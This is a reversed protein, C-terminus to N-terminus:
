HPEEGRVVRVAMALVVVFVVAVAVTVSRGVIQLLFFYNRADQANERREVLYPM